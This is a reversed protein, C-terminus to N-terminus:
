EGAAAAWTRVQDEARAPLGPTGTRELGARAEGKVLSPRRAETLWKIRVERNGRMERMNKEDEFIHADSWLGM